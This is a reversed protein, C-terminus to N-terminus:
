VKSKISAIRFMKRVSEGTNLITVEIGKENHLKEKDLLFQHAASRSIFNVGEFDLIYPRGRRQLSQTFNDVSSRHVIEKGLRNRLKLKM